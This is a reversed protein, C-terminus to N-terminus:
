MNCCLFHTKKKKLSPSSGKTKLHHTLHDLVEPSLSTLRRAISDFNSKCMTFHIHLHCLRWQMINLAVFIFTQYCRFSRDPVNLLANVHAQFPVKPTRLPHEFGALGFLYLTPFMGPMLNLNNYEVVAHHSHHLILNPSHYPTINKLATICKGVPSLHFQCASLRSQPAEQKDKWQLSFDLSQVSIFLLFILM